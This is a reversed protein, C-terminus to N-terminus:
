ISDSGHRRRTAATAGVTACFLAAALLMVSVVYVIQHSAASQGSSRAIAGEALGAAALPISGHRNWRSLGASRAKVDRRTRLLTASVGLIMVVASAIAFVTLLQM